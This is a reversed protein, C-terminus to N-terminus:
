YSHQFINSYSSSDLVDVFAAAAAAAAAEEVEGSV